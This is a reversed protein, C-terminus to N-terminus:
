QSFYNMFIYQYGSIILIRGRSLTLYVLKLTYIMGENGSIKEDMDVEVVQTQRCNGFYVNLIEINHLVVWFMVTTKKFLAFLIIVLKFVLSKKLM